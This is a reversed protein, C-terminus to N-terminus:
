PIPGTIVWVPVDGPAPYGPNLFRVPSQEPTAVAKGAPECATAPFALMGLAVARRGITTM